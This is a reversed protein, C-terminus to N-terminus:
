ISHYISVISFMIFFRLILIIFSVYIYIYITYFLSLTLKLLSVFLNLSFFLWFLSFSSLIFSISPHLVNLICIHVTYMVNSRSARASHFAFCELVNEFHIHNFYLINCTIRLVNYSSCTHLLLIRSLAIHPTHNFYLSIYECNSVSYCFILILFWICIHLIYQFM